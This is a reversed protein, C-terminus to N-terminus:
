GLGLVVWLIVKAMFGKNCGIFFVSLRTFKPATIKVHDWDIFKDEDNQTSGLGLQRWKTGEKVPM